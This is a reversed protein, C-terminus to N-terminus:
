RKTSNFIMSRSVIEASIRFKISVEESLPRQQSERTLRPTGISSTLVPPAFYAALGVVQTGTRWLLQMNSLRRSRSAGIPPTPTSANCSPGQSPAPLGGPFTSSPAPKVLKISM